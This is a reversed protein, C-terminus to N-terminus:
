GAISVRLIILKEPKRGRPVIATGLFFRATRIGFMQLFLLMNDRFARCPGGCDWPVKGIVIESMFEAIEKTETDKALWTRYNNRKNRDSTRMEDCGTTLCGEPRDRVPVAKRIKEYEDSVCNQLWREPVRATGATGAPPIKEPPPRDAYDGTEQSIIINEPHEAFSGGCRECRFGPKGNRVSGNRVTNESNCAPCMM